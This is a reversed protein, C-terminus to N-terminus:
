SFASLARQKATTLAVLLATKVSLFKIKDPHPHYIEESAQALAMSSNGAASYNRGLAHVALLSSGLDAVPEWGRALTPSIFSLPLFTNLLVNPWQCM